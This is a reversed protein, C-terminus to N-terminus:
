QALPSKLLSERGEVICRHMEAVDINLAEAAEAASLGMFDIAALAARGKLSITALLDTLYGSSSASPKLQTASEWCRKVIIPTINADKPISGITAALVRYTERVCQHAAKRDLTLFFAMRLTDDARSCLEESFFTVDSEFRDGTTM